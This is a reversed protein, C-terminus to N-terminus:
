YALDLMRLPREPDLFFFELMHRSNQSTYRLSSWKSEVLRIAEGALTVAESSSPQHALALVDLKFKLHALLVMLFLHGLGSVLSLSSYGPGFYLRTFVRMHVYRLFLEEVEAPLNIRELRLRKLRGAAPLDRVRPEQEVLEALSSILLHEPVMNDPSRSQPFFFELYTAILYADSKEGEFLFESSARINKEGTYDYAMLRLNQFLRALLPLVAYPPNLFLPELSEELARQLPLYLEYALPLDSALRLNEFGRVSEDRLGPNLREFLDLMSLLLDHQETLPPGANLLVGSSAFSLGCLVGEPCHLFTFPFLSCMSPKAQSHLSCLGESDLFSCRGGAKTLASTFGFLGAGRREQESLSLLPLDEISRGTVLSIRAVDSETVPM